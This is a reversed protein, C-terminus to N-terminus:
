KNVDVRQGSWRRFEMTAEAPKYKDIRPDDTIWVRQIESGVREIAIISRDQLLDDVFQRVAVAESKGSLEALIDAHTHWSYKDFGLSIDGSKDKLVLFRLLGDLSEHEEIIRNM